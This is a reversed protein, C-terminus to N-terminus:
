RNSPTSSRSVGSSPCAARKKRVADAEDGVGVSLHPLEIGLPAPLRSVLEPQRELALIRCL